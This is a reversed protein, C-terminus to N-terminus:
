RGRQAPGDGDITTSASVPRDDERAEPPRPAGTSTSTGPRHRSLAVGALCSAGGVLGVATPLEGLTAWSIIVVISPVALTTSALTGANIRTLAFAWLAFGV